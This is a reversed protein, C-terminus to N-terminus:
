KKCLVKLRQCEELVEKLTKKGNTKTPYFWKTRQRIKSNM